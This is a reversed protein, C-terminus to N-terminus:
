PLLDQQCTHWSGDGGGLPIWLPTAPVHPSPDQPRGQVTPGWRPAWPPLLSPKGRAVAAQGRGPPQGEGAIVTNVCEYLLSMASTSSPSSCLRSSCSAQSICPSRVDAPGGHVRSDGPDTANGLPCSGGKRVALPPRQCEWVSFGNGSGKQKEVMLSEGPDGHGSPTCAQVHLVAPTM